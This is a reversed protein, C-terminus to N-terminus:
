IASKSQYIAGSDLKYQVVAIYEPTAVSLNYQLLWEWM